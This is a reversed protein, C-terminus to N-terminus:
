LLLFESAQKGSASMAFLAMPPQHQLEAVDHCPTPPAAERTVTVIVQLFSPALACVEMDSFCRFVFCCTDTCPLYLSDKFIESAILQRPHALAQQANLSTM